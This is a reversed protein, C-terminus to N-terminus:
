SAATAPTTKGTGAERTRLAGGTIVTAGAFM